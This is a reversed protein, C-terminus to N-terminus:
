ITDFLENVIRDRSSTNKVNVMDKITNVKNLINNNNFNNNNFNNNNQYYNINNQNQKNNFLNNNIQQLNNNPNINQLNNINLTDLNSEFNINGQISSM